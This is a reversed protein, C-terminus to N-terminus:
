GGDAPERDSAKGADNGDPDLSAITLRAAALTQGVVLAAIAAILGQSPPPMGHGIRGRPAEHRRAAPLLRREHRDALGLAHDIEALWQLWRARVDGQGTACVPAFGPYADSGTRLDEACGAARLAPGGVGIRRAHDAALVGTGATARELLGGRRVARALARAEGRLGAAESGALCRDRLHRAARAADRHGAVDLFRGLSDLHAAARWREAEPVPTAEGALAARWPREWWSGAGAEARAALTEVRADQVVDGQLTLVVRLLPPWGFSGVGFPVDLVDLKLGDRDEARSAMELGGPAM